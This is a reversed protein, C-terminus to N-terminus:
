PATPKQAMLDDIITELETDSLGSHRILYQHNKNPTTQWFLQGQSNVDAYGDTEVQWYTVGNHELGRTAILIATQDPSPRGDVLSNYAHRYAVKMPSEELDNYILGTIITEGLDAGSIIIEAPWHAFTYSSATAAAILGNSKGGLNVDAKRGRNKPLMWGGTIIMKQAKAALLDRGNRDDIQDGPSKLLDEINYFNGIVVITVSHDEADHLLQRYVDVAAPRDQNAIGDHPHNAYIDVSFPCYEMRIDDMNPRSPIGIPINPRNYYYNIASIVNGHKNNHDRTSLVVGLINLEGNDALAHAMGLAAADDCDTMMDTDIILPTASSSPIVMKKNKRQM